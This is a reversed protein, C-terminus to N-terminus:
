RSLGDPLSRVGGGARPQGCRFLVVDAPDRVPQGNPVTPPDAAPPPAAPATATAQRARRAAALRQQRDNM